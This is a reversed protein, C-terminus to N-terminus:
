MNTTIDKRIWMKEVDALDQWLLPAGMMRVKFSQACRNCQFLLTVDNAIKVRYSGISRPVKIGHGGKFPICYLCQFYKVVSPM